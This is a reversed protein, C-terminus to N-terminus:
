PGFTKGVAYKETNEASRYLTRVTPSQSMNVSFADKSFSWCACGSRLFANGLMCAHIVILFYIYATVIIHWLTLMQSSHSPLLRMAVQHSSKLIVRIGVSPSARLLPISEWLLTCSQLNKPGTKPLGQRHATGCDVITTEVLQAWIHIMIM